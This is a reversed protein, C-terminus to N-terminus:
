RKKYEKKFMRWDNECLNRLEECKQMNALDPFTINMQIDLLYEILDFFADNLAVPIEKYKGIINKRYDFIERLYHLLSLVFRLLFEDQGVNSNNEVSQSIRTELYVLFERFNPNDYIYTENSVNFYKQFAKCSAIIKEYSYNLHDGSSCIVRLLNDTGILLDRNYEEFPFCAGNFLQQLYQFYSCAEKKPLGQNFWFFVPKLRDINRFFDTIDVQYDGDIHKSIDPVDFWQGQIKKKVLWVDGNTFVAYKAKMTNVDAYSIAQDMGAEIKNNEWRKCEVVVYSQDERLVVIDAFRNQTGIKVTKEIEINNISIGYTTLLEFLVWQRVKEEPTKPTRGFLYAEPKVDYYPKPPM